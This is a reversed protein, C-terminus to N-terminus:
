LYNSEIDPFEKIELDEDVDSSIVISDDKVEDVCLGEKLIDKIDPSETIVTSGTSKMLRQKNFVTTKVANNPTEPVFIKAEEKKKERVTNVRRVARKLCPVVIQRNSTERKLLKRPQPRTVEKNVKSSPDNSCPDNCRSAQPKVSLPKAPTNPDEEENSAYTVLTSPLPQNLEEFIEVLIEGLSDQYSPVVFLRLFEGVTSPDYKLSIMRLISVIEETYEECIDKKKRPSKRKDPTISSPRPYGLVWLVELYLLVQLRFQRLQEKEKCLSRIQKSSLLVNKSLIERLEMEVSSTSFYTKIHRLTLNVICQAASHLDELSPANVIATENENEEFGDRLKILAMALEDKDQPNKIKKMAKSMIAISKKQARNQAELAKRKCAAKREEEAQQEKVKMQAAVIKSNKVLKQARSVRFKSINIAAPVNSKVLPTDPAAAASAPQTVDIMAPPPLHTGSLPRPMQPCYKKQLRELMSQEKKSKKPKLLVNNAAVENCPYWSQLMQPQFRQFTSTESTEPLQSTNKLVKKIASKVFMLLGKELCSELEFINSPNVLKFKSLSSTLQTSSFLVLCGVGGVWPALGVLGGNQLQLIMFLNQETLVSLLSPFITNPAHCVYLLSSPLGIGLLSLASGRVVGKVYMDEWQKSSNIFITKWVYNFSSGCFTSYSISFLFYEM